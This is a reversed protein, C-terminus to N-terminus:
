RRNEQTQCSYINKVNKLKRSVHAYIKKLSPCYYDKTEENGFFKFARAMCGGYCIKHWPCELCSPHDKKNRLKIALEGQMMEEITQQNVNGYRLHSHSSFTACPYVFGDPDVSINEKACNKQSICDLPSGCLVSGARFAFDSCHVHKSDQNHLWKDFIKIWPDAYEDASLGVDDYNELASGSKNLPIVNFNLKEQVLFDYIEEIYDKNLKSIVVCVGLSIDAKQVLKIMSINQDM